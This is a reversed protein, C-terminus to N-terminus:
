ATSRSTSRGPDDPPALQKEVTLQAPLWNGFDRGQANPTTDAVIPGWGCGFLGGAGDAFGGPTTANPFSCVWSTASPAPPVLTERLTYTGQPPRIDNLVYHGDADTVTFPEIAQRVGDGDFDAWILFRPIGPEGTQRAGDANLDLFKTGSASCTRVALPRPAVYDQLNSTESTSSRSHMWISGFAFCKDHFGVDFLHGINLASEGFQGAAPITTSPPFFGPLLSPIPGANVAGQADSAAVTAVDTLHGTTACGTAADTATTTWRQLVVEISNGSAEFALIVDGTRRCPIQAKGNNWLRADQNLEFALHTTGTAAQRTFALYLLTNAGPQDLVSFADLINDKGPTVGGAQATLQWAGPQNEKTGDVFETDSADPDPSHVVRGAAQLGQWDVFPAQDDQNGDGGQFTSGPLPTSGGPLPAGAASGPAVAALALLGIIAALGVRRGDWSRRTV